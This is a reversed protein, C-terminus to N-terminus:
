NKWFFYKLKKLKLIMGVGFPNKRIWDIGLIKINKTLYNM